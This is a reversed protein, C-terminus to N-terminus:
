CTICYSGWNYVDMSIVLLLNVYRRRDSTSIITSRKTIKTENRWLSLVSRNLGCKGDDM